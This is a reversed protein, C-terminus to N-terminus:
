RADHLSQRAAAGAQSVLDEWLRRKEATTRALFTAPDELTPSLSTSDYKVEVTASSRAEFRGACAVREDDHSYLFARGTIQGAIFRIQGTQPDKTMRAEVIEDAVFFPDATRSFAAKSTIRKVEDLQMRTVVGERLRTELHKVRSTLRELTDGIPVPEDPRVVVFSSSPEIRCPSSSLEIASLKASDVASRYAVERKAIETKAGDLERALEARGESALDDRHERRHKAWYAWGIYLFPLAFLGLVVVVFPWRKKRRANARRIMEDAESMGRPIM